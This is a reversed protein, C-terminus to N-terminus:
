DNNELVNILTKARIPNRKYLHSRWLQSRAYAAQFTGMNKIIKAGQQGVKMHPEELLYELLKDIDSKDIPGVRGIEVLIGVNDYGNKSDLQDILSVIYEKQIQKAEILIKEGPFEKVLTDFSTQPWSKKNKRWARLEQILKEGRQEREERLLQLERERAIRLAEEKKRRELEALQREQEVEQKLSKVYENFDGPNGWYLQFRNAAALRERKTLNEIETKHRNWNRLAKRERLIESIETSLKTMSFQTKLNELEIDTPNPLTATLKGLAYQELEEWLEPETVLSNELVKTGQFKLVWKRFQDCRAELDKEKILVNFELQANQEHTEITEFDRQEASAVKLEFRVNLANGTVTTGIDIGRFWKLFEPRYSEPSDLVDENNRQVPWADSVWLSPCDPREVAVYKGGLPCTMRGRLLEEALERAEDAELYLQQMLEHLLDPNAHSLQTGQWYMLDRAMEGVHTAQLDGISIKIAAPEDIPELVVENAVQNVVTSNLGIIRRDAERRLWLPTKGFSKEEMMEARGSKVGTLSTRSDFSSYDNKGLVGVFGTFVQPNVGAIRFDPYGNKLPIQVSETLDKMGLFLHNPTEDLNKGWLWQDIGGKRVPASVQLIHDKGVAIRDGTPQLYASALQLMWDNAVPMVSVTGVINEQSEVEANQRNLTITVPDLRRWYRRYSRTFSDYATVESATAKSVLVDPIPLFTGAAGRLTDIPKGQVLKPYSGDTRLDITRPLLEEDILDEVSAHPRREAIAAWRAMQVLELDSLARARRTMEIRYEPSIMQAFFPDSLYIFVADESNLPNKSRSYQFAELQALSGKNADTVQFFRSVLHRSTTIFHVSGVNAHFSRISNDPKSLVTFKHGDIEEHELTAEPFKRIVSRRHRELVSQLGNSNNAHVMVGFAAGEAYFTDAGILAFETVEGKGFIEECVEEDIAIQHELKARIGSDLGRQTILQNLNGGWNSLTECFWEWDKMTTCRVYFCEEPVYEALKEVERKKFLPITVRPPLVAKPLPQNAPQLEEKVDLLTEKQLAVRMSGTGLMTHIFNEFQQMDTSSSGTQRRRHPETLKLRKQLMHQLYNRLMDHGAYELRPDQDNKRYVNWWQLKLLDADEILSHKTQSQHVGAVHASLNLEGSGIFLFHITVKSVTKGNVRDFDVAPYLVRQETDTLWIVPNEQLEPLNKEDFKIEIKGFGFPEGAVSEVMVQSPFQQPPKAAEIIIPPIVEAEPINEPPVFVNALKGPPEPQVDPVPNDPEAVEVDVPGDSQDLEETTDPPLEVTGQGIGVMKVQSPHSNGPFLIAVWIVLITIAASMSVTLPNRTGYRILQQHRRIPRAMVPRNERFRQLDEALEDASQYRNSSDKEICKLCISELDRPIESNIQRLAVPAQHCANNLIELHNDGNFPTKGTLLEYLIVGMSYVDSGPGVTGQSPLAQEPPMYRATGLLQGDGTATDNADMQKALGFDTIRVCGNSDILANAPKLDRHLIGAEHAYHIARAITEVIQAADLNAIPRENILEELTRGEVYEMSYYHLERYEGFEFIRVINEHNLRAVAEAEKQFRRIADPTSLASDRIMKVAVIRKLSRQRALYVIGMGGRGIQSLLDYDGMRGLVDPDDSKELINLSRQGVTQGSKISHTDSVDNHTSGFASAFPDEELFDGAGEHLKLLQEVQIRLQINRGCAKRLFLARQRQDDLEIAEAFITAENM